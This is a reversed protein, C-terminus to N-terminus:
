FPLDDGDMIASPIEGRDYDARGNMAKDAKSIISGCGGNWAMRVVGPSHHRNKAVNLEIDEILLNEGQDRSEYYEPRHLLIVSGADQEIAGSDRLDSLTPRKDQRAMNERNLQALALVPIGLSKAMAKCGASIETMQEYRPKAKSEQPVPILGLYDVIVLSLSRIQRAIRSIDGITLDSRTTLYFQRSTIQDITDSLREEEDADLSGSMLKTYELGSELAIRKAMIQDETMELSVFLVAEGRRAVNEAINIGLTTKGMGPRAGIVYVESRFMGGGLQWDLEDFGTQCYANTPNGKTKLYYRMFRSALAEGSSLVQESDEACIDNLQTLIEGFGTMWDGNPDFMVESLLDRVRRSKSGKKVLECYAEVNAATPTTKMVDILWQSMDNGMSAAMEDGICVVDVPKGRERLSVAARYAERCNEDAFDDVTIGHAEVLPMVEPSILISGVLSIENLRTQSEGLRM